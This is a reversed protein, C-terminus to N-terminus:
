GQQTPAEKRASSQEKHWRLIDRIGFFLIVAVIAVGLALLLISYLDFGTGTQGPPGICKSAVTIPHYHSVLIITLLGGMTVDLIHILKAEDTKAKTKNTNARLKLIIYAGGLIVASGFVVEPLNSSILELLTPNSQVQLFLIGASSANTYDAAIRVSYWGSPLTRDPSIAADVTVSKGPGLEVTTVNLSLENTPTAGLTFSSTATLNLRMETSLNNTIVVSDHVTQGGTVIGTQIPKAQVTLHSTANGPVMGLKDSYYETFWFNGAEDLTSQVSYAGQSPILFEEMMGTRPDLRGIKNTLHEEFWLRGQTDAVITDPASYTASSTTPPLSTPFREYTQNSPLFEDVSSGYHETIWINGNKDFVIGVPSSITRSPTYEQFLHTTVNFKAIKGGNPSYDETLWINSSGPQLALGAPGTDQTPLTYEMMTTYRPATLVGLNNVANEAFWVNDQADVIVSYPESRPTKTLHPIFTQNSPDFMWIASQNDDSFWIRGEHDIALAFPTPQNVTIRPVTYNRSTNNQPIFEGIKGSGYETFWFAHNPGLAIGAPDSGKTLNYETVPTDTQSPLGLLNSTAQSARPNPYASQVSFILSVILLCVILSALLTAKPMYLRIGPLGQAKLLGV